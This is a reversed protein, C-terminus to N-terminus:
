QCLRFKIRAQEEEAPKWLGHKGCLFMVTGDDIAKLLETKESNSDV